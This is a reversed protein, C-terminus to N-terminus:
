VEWTVIVRRYSTMTRTRAATYLETKPRAICSTLVYLLFCRILCLNWQKIYSSFGTEKRKRAENSKESAKGQGSKPKIQSAYEIAEQQVTSHESTPYNKIYSISEAYTLRVAVSVAPKQFNQYQVLYWGNQSPLQLSLRVSFWASNSSTRIVMTSLTRFHYNEEWKRFIFFSSVSPYM